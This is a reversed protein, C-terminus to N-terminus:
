VDLSLHRHFTNLVNINEINNNKNEDFRQFPIGCLINSYPLETGNM